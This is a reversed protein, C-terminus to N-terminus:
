PPSSAPRPKPRSRSSIRAPTISRSRSRSRRASACARAHEAGRGPPHHHAEGVGAQEAHERHGQGRDTQAGGVLGFRPAKLVELRRDFEGPKGTILAHVPADFGLAAANKPVDHVEGDTLMIVGALRDPPMDALGKALDTFLKTGDRDSDGSTSTSDVWRVDLNPFAKLREELEKRITETRPDRGAITQSQSDDVVVALVDNLPEREEQQLHPNAIAAAAHAYALARLVAGRRARWLLLAFLVVGVGALAWLVPWSVFPIFEISWSM